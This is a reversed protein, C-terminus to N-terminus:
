YADDDADPQDAYYEDEEEAEMEEQTEDAYEYDEYDVKMKKLSRPERGWLAVKRAIKWLIRAEKKTPVDTVDSHMKRSNAFLNAVDNNIVRAKSPMAKYITAHIVMAYLYSGYASPHISDDLFLKSWLQRDQEYVALFANGVPAIRTKRRRIKKNLFTRYIKAGEYIKSTFTGLNELGTMNVQESYFAHPQVIIPVASKKKLIPGYTYNLAMLAEERSEDFAMRKSQDVMVVFDWKTAKKSNHYDLYNDNVLCPNGGDSVYHGDANGYSLLNDTGTLLQPVSCAGMDYLYDTTGDQSTWEVGGVMAKSSQWKNYMGNGTKLINLLSGSGHICSDQHMHGGTVAEMLRPIDNVFLYSNGIFAVNADRGLPAGATLAVTAVVAVLGAAWIALKTATIAGGGCGLLWMVGVVIKDWLLKAKQRERYYPPLSVDCDGAEPDDIISAQQEQSKYSTTPEVNTWGRPEPQSDLLPEKRQVAPTPEAAAPTTGKAEKKFRTMFGMKKTSKVQKPLFEDKQPAPPQVILNLNRLSIYV